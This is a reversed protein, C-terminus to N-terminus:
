INEVSLKKSKSELVMLAVKNQLVNNIWFQNASHALKLREAM